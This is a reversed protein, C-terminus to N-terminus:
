LTDWCSRPDLVPWVPYWVRFFACPAKRLINTDLGSEPAYHMPIIGKWATTPETTKANRLSLFRTDPPNFITQFTICLIKFMCRQVIPLWHLDRLVPTIHDHLRTRSRHKGAAGSSVNTERVPYEFNSVLTRFESGWYESGSWRPIICTPLWVHSHYARKLLNLTIAPLVGVYNHYFITQIM